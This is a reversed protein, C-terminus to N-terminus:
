ILCTSEEVIQLTVLISLQFALIYEKSAYLVQENDNVTLESVALINTPRDKKGSNFVYVDFTSKPNLIVSSLEAQM